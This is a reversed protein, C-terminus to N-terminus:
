PRNQQPYGWIAPGPCEGGVWQKGKAWEQGSMHCCLRFGNEELHHGKAELHDRTSPKVIVLQTGQAARRSPLQQVIAVM